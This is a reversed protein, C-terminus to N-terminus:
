RSIRVRPLWISSKLCAAESQQRRVHLDLIFKARFSIKAKTLKAMSLLFSEESEARERERERERQTLGAKKWGRWLDARPHQKAREPRAEEGYLSNVYM